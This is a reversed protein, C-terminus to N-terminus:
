ELLRNEVLFKALLAALEAHGAANLHVPDDPLLWCRPDETAMFHGWADLFPSETEHATDEMARQLAHVRDMEIGEVLHEGWFESVLLVKAGHQGATAVIDLLNAAFDNVPNVDKWLKADYWGAMDKERLRVMLDTLGNYVYSKRLVDQVRAVWDPRDERRRDWWERYTALGRTNKVDNRLAYLIVLYPEYAQAYETFLVMIQFVNYGRVGANLVEVSYGQNNLSKELLWPFTTEPGPQGDGWANSGGLVMIRFVGPSKQVPTNERGRFQIKRVRFDDRDQFDTEYGFFNKPVWFLDEDTQFTSGVGLPHLYPAAPGLRLAVEWAGAILVAVTLMLLGYHRLERRNASLPLSLMWVGPPLFAAVARGAASPPLAALLILPWVLFLVPFFCTLGRRLSWQREYAFFWVLNFLLAAAVLGGTLRAGLSAHGALHLLGVAAAGSALMSLGAGLLRVRGGEVPLFLSTRLLWFRLRGFFWFLVAAAALLSLWRHDITLALWWLLGATWALWSGALTASPVKRRRALRWEVFFLVGAAVLLVLVLGVAKSDSRGIEGGIAEGIREDLSLLRVSSSASRLACKLLPGQLSWERRISGDLAVQAVRGQVMIELGIASSLSQLLGIEPQSIPFNYPGGASECSLALEHFAVPEFRLRILYKDAEVLEFALSEGNQMVMGPRLAVGERTSSHFTLRNSEVGFQRTLRDALRLVAGATLGALLLLLILRVRKM